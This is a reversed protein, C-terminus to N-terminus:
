PATTGVVSGDPAALILLPAGLDRAVARSAEDIDDVSRAGSVLVVAELEDAASAVATAVAAQVATLRLSPLAVSAAAYTRGDTDRVAAGEAAGARGRAGRALTLLKGNEPDLSPTDPSVPSQATM